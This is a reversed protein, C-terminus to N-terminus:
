REWRKKTDNAYREPAGGETDGVMVVRDVWAGRMGPVGQLRRELDDTCRQAAEPTRHKHPCDGMVNTTLSTGPHWPSGGYFYRM